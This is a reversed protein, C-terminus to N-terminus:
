RKLLEIKDPFKGTSRILFDHETELGGSIELIEYAQYISFAWLM